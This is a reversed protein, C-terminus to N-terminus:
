LTKIERKLAIINKQTKSIHQKATDIKKNYSDIQMM